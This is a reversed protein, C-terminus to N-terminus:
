AQNKGVCYNGVQALPTIVALFLPPVVRYRVFDYGPLSSLSTSM